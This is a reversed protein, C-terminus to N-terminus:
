AYNAIEKLAIIKFYSSPPLHHDGCQLSFFHSNSFSLSLTCICLSSIKSPMFPCKPKQASILQYQLCSIYLPFLFISSDIESKSYTGQKIYSKSVILTPLIKKKISLHIVIANCCNSLILTRSSAGIYGM